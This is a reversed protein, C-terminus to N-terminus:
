FKRWRSDRFRMHPFIIVQEEAKAQATYIEPVTQKEAKSPQETSGGVVSVVVHVISLISM